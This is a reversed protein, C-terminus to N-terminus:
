PLDYMKTNADYEITRKKVLSDIFAAVESDQARPAATTAADFIEDESLPKEFIAGMIGANMAKFMKADVGSQATMEYGESGPRHPRDKSIMEKIISRITGRTIKM